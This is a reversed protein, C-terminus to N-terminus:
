LVVQVHAAGGSAGDSAGAAAHAAQHQQWCIVDSRVHAQHRGHEHIYAATVHTAGVARGCHHPLAGLRRQARRQNAVLHALDDGLTDVVREVLQRGELLPEIFDGHHYELLHTAGGAEGPRRRLQERAGHALSRM